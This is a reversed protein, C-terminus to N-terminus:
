DLICYLCVYTLQVSTRTNSLGRQLKANISVYHLVKVMLGPFPFKLTTMPWRYPVSVM